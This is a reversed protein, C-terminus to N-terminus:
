RTAIAPATARRTNKQERACEACFAYQNCKDCEKAVMVCYACSNEHRCTPCFRAWRWGQEMEDLCVALELTSIEKSDDIDVLNFIRRAEVRSLGVREAIGSFISFTLLRHNENHEHKAHGIYYHAEATSTLGRAELARALHQIRERGIDRAATKCARAYAEAEYLARLRTEQHGTGDDDAEPMWRREWDRDDNDHWHWPGGSQHTPACIQAVSHTNGM